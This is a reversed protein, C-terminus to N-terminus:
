LVDHIEDADIVDGESGVGEEAVVDSERVRERRVQVGPLLDLGLADLVDLPDLVRALERVQEAPEDTMPVAVLLDHLEGAGVHQSGQTLDPDSSAAAGADSGRM